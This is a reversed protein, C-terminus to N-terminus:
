NTSETSRLSTRIITGCRKRWLVTNMFQASPLTCGSVSTSAQLQAQQSKRLPTKTHVYIHKHQQHSRTLDKTWCALLEQASIDLSMENQMLFFSTLATIKHIGPFSQYCLLLHGQLERSWSNGKPKIHGGGAQSLLLRAPLTCCSQPLERRIRHNKEAEETPGPFAHLPFDCM